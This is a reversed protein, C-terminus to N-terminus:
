KENRRDFFHLIVNRLRAVSWVSLPLLTWFPEFCTSEHVSTGKSPSFNQDNRNQPTKGGFGEFNPTPIPNEMCIFINFIEFVTVSLLVIGLAVGSLQPDGIWHLLRFKQIQSRLTRFTPWMKYLVHIVHLHMYISFPWLCFHWELHTPVPKQFAM